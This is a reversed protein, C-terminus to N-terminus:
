EKIIGFTWGLAKAIGLVKIINTRDWEVCVVFDVGDGSTLVDNLSYHNHAEGLEKWNKARSLENYRSYAWKDGKCYGWVKNLAKPYLRFIGGIESLCYREYDQKTPVDFLLGEPMEGCIRELSMSTLRQWSKATVGGTTKWDNDNLVKYFHEVEGEKLCIWYNRQQCYNLFEAFTPKKNKKGVDEKQLNKKKM